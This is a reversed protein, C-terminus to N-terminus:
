FRSFTQIQCDTSVIKQSVAMFFFLGLKVSLKIYYKEM